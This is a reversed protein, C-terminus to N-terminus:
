LSQIWQVIAKAQCNNNKHSLVFERSRSGIEDLKYLPTNMINIISKKFGEVTEDDVPILFNFYEEPICALRTALVPRGSLMYEMIKSPFSYKTYDENSFRPNFLVTSRKQLEIALQNPIVGYYRIRKDIKTIDKIESEMEGSGCLWLEINSDPIGRIASILAGVGFKKYLGGTYTIIFKGKDQALTRQVIMDDANVLGEIVISPRNNINVMQNMYKSLLIYMDYHKDFSLYIKQLIKKVLSIGKQKHAGYMQPIDAVLAVTKINLIKASILVPISVWFRMLDCIAVLDHSHRSKLFFNFSYIFSYISICIQRLIPIALIPVYTFKCHENVSEGQAMRSIFNFDRPYIQRLSLVTVNNGNNLFGEVLLNCFKQISIEPKITSQELINKFTEQSCYSGVSLINM